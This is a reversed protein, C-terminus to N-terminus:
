QRPGTIEYHPGDIFDKGPHRKQYAQCELFYSEASGGFDSLKRDWAGGWRILNAIGMETAARDMALAIPYIRDWDWSPKGDVWPVLDEALGDLHKSEMTQSTGDKVHQTQEAISRIGDFVMFDQTTYVLALRTCAVLRRDVGIMEKESSKGFVFKPKAAAAQAVAGSKANSEGMKTTDLADSGTGASVPAGVAVSALVAMIGKGATNIADMHRGLDQIQAESISFQTM